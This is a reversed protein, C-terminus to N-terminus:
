FFPGMSMLTPRFRRRTSRRRRRRTNRRALSSFSFLIDVETDLHLLMNKTCNLDAPFSNTGHGADVAHKMLSMELAM